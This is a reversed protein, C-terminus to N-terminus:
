GKDEGHEELEEWDPVPFRLLAAVGGLDMLQQGSAHATSLHLVRGGTAQVRGALQVYRARTPVDMSRFLADTLLLTDIAGLGAAHEVQPPGYAAREADGNLREYFSELARAQEAFRTDALRAAAPPSALLEHLAHLHGSSAPLVLFRSRNELLTRLPRRNAEAIAYAMFDDKLFGPSAVLVCKIVAFDTNQLLAQLIREFFKHLAQQRQGFATSALRGLKSPIPLQIRARVFTATGTVLCVHALGEEMIVAVVEASATPDTANRLVDLHVADPHSKRLWFRVGPVLELTHHQHLKVHENESLNVGQLRLSPARPDFDVSQVRVTLSLRIREAGGSGAAIGDAGGANGRSVKRYTSARVADGHEILNYAQWLDEPTEPTLSVEFRQATLDVSRSHLKM